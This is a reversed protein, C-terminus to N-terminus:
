GWGGGVSVELGLYRYTDTISLTLVANGNIRIHSTGLSRGTSFDYACIACKANNIVLGAWKYFANLRQVMVRMGHESDSLIACDDIYAM